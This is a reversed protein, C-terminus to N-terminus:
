CPPKEFVYLEGNKAIKFKPGAFGRRILEERMFVMLAAHSVILVNETHNGFAHDFVESIRCRARKIEARTKRDFYMSLRIWVAWMLFPLRLRESFAPPPIEILEVMPTIPGPFITEATKVARSLTSVYCKNWEIGSLDTSGSEIDAQDYTRFWENVVRGPIFAGKPYAQKVKFHRVLGVKM